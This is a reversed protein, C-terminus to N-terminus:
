LGDPGMSNKRRARHHAGEMGKRESARSTKLDCQYKNSLCKIGPSGPLLVLACPRVRMNECM